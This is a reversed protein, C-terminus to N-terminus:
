TGVLGRPQDLELIPDELPRDRGPLGPADRPGRRPLGVVDRIDHEVAEFLEADQSGARPAVVALVDFDDFRDRPEAGAAVLLDEPEGDVVRQTVALRELREDL